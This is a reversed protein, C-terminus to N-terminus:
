PLAKRLVEEMGMPPRGTLREIDGTVIDCASDEITQLLQSLLAAFPPPVGVHTLLARHEDPTRILVASKGYVKTAVQAIEDATYSRPGTGNYIAGNHVGSDDLLIAALAAGIDDRSVFNGRATRGYMVVTKDPSFIVHAMSEIFMTMKLVTWRNRPVVRMLHQEFNFYENAYNWPEHFRSGSMGLIVVRQVGAAVAADIATTMQRTALGPTSNDGVIIAIADVGKYAADLSARDDMDGRRAEDAGEFTKGEVSRSVAVIRVNQSGKQTAIHKLVAQGTNGSAGSIAITKFSM